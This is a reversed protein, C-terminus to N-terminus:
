YSRKWLAGRSTLVGEYQFHAIAEEKQKQTVQIM